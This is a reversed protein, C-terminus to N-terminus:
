TEGAAIPDGFIQGLEVCRRVKKGRTGSKIM